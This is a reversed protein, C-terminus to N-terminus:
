HRRPEPIAPSPPPERGGAGTEPYVPTCADRGSAPVDLGVWVHLLTDRPESWRIRVDLLSRFGTRYAFPVGEGPVAVADLRGGNLPDRAAITWEGTHGPWITVCGSLPVSLTPITDTSLGGAGATIPIYVWGGGQRMAQILEGAAQARATSPVVLSAALALAPLVARRHMLLDVGGFARPSGTGM